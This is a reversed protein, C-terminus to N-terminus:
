ALTDLCAKIVEINIRDHRLRIHLHPLRCTVEFDLFARIVAAHVFLHLTVVLLDVLSTSHAKRGAIGSRVPLWGTRFRWTPRRVPLSGANGLLLDLLGASALTVFLVTFASRHIGVAFGDIM